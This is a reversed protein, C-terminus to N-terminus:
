MWSTMYIKLKIDKDDMMVVSKTFHLSCILLTTERKVTNDLCGNMKRKDPLM